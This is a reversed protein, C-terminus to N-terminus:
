PVVACLRRGFLCHRLNMRDGFIKELDRWGLTDGEVGNEKLALCELLNLFRISQQIKEISAPLLELDNGSLDLMELNTSKEMGKPLSKLHNYSLDLYKLKLLEWIRESLLKLDNCSLDLMELNRWKEVGEPLSELDNGSLDLKRLRPLNGIAAPLSRLKNKSLDLWELRTWRWIEEPLSALNTESLNFVRLNHLNLIEVPLSASKDGSLDLVELEWPDEGPKIKGRRVLFERLEQESGPGSSGQRGPGPGRHEDDEASAADGGAWSAACVVGSLAAVVLVVLGSRV